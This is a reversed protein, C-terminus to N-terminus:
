IVTLSTGCDNCFNATAKNLKGCTQCKPKAKVTVTEKVPAGDASGLLRLIMVHKVGDTNCYSTTFKQDSISGPVTIGQDNATYSCNVATASLTSNSAAYIKNDSVGRLVSGKVPGDSSSNWIPGYNPTGTWSPGFTYKKDPYRWSDDSDVKLVPLAEFEFEVRLLGDEVKNGRHKEIASTKEIFKFRNGKDLDKVFRELEIEKGADIILGGNVVNEGDIFINAVARRTSLNKLLISYESGYKLYVVDKFERLVKNSSKVCTIFQNLFM